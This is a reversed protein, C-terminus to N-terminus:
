IFGKEMNGKINYYYGGQKFPIKVYKKMKTLRMIRVYCLVKSTIVTYFCDLTGLWLGSVRSKNM